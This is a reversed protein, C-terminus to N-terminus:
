TSAHSEAEHWPLKVSALSYLIKTSHSEPLVDYDIDMNLLLSFYRTLNSTKV